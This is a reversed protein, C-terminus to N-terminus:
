DCITRCIGGPIIGLCCALLLAQVDSNGLQRGEGWWSITEPAMSKSFVLIM